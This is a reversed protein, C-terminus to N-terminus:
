AVELHERIFYEQHNPYYKRYAELQDIHEQHNRTSSMTIIAFDSGLRKFVISFYKM